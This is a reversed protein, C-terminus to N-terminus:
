VSLGCYTTSKIEYNPCLITYLISYQLNYSKGKKNQNGTNNQFSKKTDNLIVYSLPPLYFHQFGLLCYNVKMKDGSVGALKQM